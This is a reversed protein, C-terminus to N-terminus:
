KVTYEVTKLSRTSNNTDVFLPLAVRVTSGSPPVTLTDTLTVTTTGKPLTTMPASPNLTRNGQDLLLLVVSGSGSSVITCTVTATFTVRDGATLTTGSAPTLSNLEIWDRTPATPSDAGCASVVALALLLVSNRLM